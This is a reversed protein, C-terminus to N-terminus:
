LLREATLCEAKEENRNVNVVGGCQSCQAPVLKTDNM